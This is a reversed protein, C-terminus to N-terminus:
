CIDNNKIINFSHTIPNGELTLERNLYKLLASNDLYYYMRPVIFNPIDTRLKNLPIRTTKQFHYIPAVYNYHTLYDQIRAKVELPRDAYKTEWLALEERDGLYAIGTIAKVPNSVYFYATTKGLPFHKRYEFKKEGRELRAFTEADFSLLITSM